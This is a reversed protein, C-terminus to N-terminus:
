EQLPFRQPDLTSQVIVYAQDGTSTGNSSNVTTPIAAIAVTASRVRKGTQAIGPLMWDMEILPNFRVIM